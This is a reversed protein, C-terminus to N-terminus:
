LVSVCGVCCRMLSLQAKIWAQLLGIHVTSGGRLGSAWIFLFHLAFAFDRDVWACFERGSGQVVQLAMM